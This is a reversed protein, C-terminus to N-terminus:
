MSKKRANTSVEVAKFCGRYLTDSLKLRSLHIDAKHIYSGRDAPSHNGTERPFPKSHSALKRGQPTTFKIEKVINNIVCLLAQCVLGTNRASMVESQSFFDYNLLCILSM